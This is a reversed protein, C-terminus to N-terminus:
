EGKPDKHGIIPHGKGKVRLFNIRILNSILMKITPQGHMTTYGQNSRWISASFEQKNVYLINRLGKYALNFGM